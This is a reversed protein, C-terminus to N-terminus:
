GRKVLHDGDVGARFLCARLSLDSSRWCDIFRVQALDMVLDVRDETKMEIARKVAAALLASTAVDVEGTVRVVIRAARGDPVQRKVAARFAKFLLIKLMIRGKRVILFIAGSQGLRSKRKDYLIVKAVV